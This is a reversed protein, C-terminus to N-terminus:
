FLCNLGLIASGPKLVCLQESWEPNSFVSSDGYGALMSDENIFLRSDDRSSSLSLELSKDLAISQLSYGKSSDAALGASGEVAANRLVKGCVDAVPAPSSVAALNLQQVLSSTELQSTDRQVSTVMSGAHHRSTIVPYSPSSSLLSTARLRSVLDHQCTTSALASHWSSPDAQTNSHWSADSQVNTSLSDSSLERHGSDPSIDRQEVHSSVSVGSLVSPSLLM